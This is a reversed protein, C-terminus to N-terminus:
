AVDYEGIVVISAVSADFLRRKIEAYRADGFFRDHAARDPFRLVFARNVQEGEGRLVQSVVFDFRFDAGLETLLPRIENRYQTYTDQDVVSLAVVREFPM